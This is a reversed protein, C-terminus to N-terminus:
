LFSLAIDRSGRATKVVQEPTFNAQVKKRYHPKSTRDCQCTEYGSIRFSIIKHLPIEKELAVLIRLPFILADQQPAKHRDSKRLRIPSLGPIKSGQPLVASLSSVNLQM